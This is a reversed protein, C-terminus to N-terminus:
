PKRSHKGPGARASNSRGSPGPSCINGDVLEGLTVGTAESIRLLVVLAEFQARGHEYNRITRETVECAKAMQIRTLGAKTRAALLNASVQKLQNKLSDNHPM